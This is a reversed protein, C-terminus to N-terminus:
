PENEFALPVFVDRSEPVIEVEDSLFRCGILDELFAYVGYLTGRKRGGAIRIGGSVSSSIVFGDDGLDSIGADSDSGVFISDASKGGSIVPLVCESIKEIYKSLEGAAFKESPSADPCLSIVYDSAGDRVIYRKSNDTIIM